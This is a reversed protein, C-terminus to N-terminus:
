MLLIVPKMFVDALNDNSPVYVVNLLQKEIESRVFHYRVDIHKSRQHQVPNKALAIDGQNDCYLSISKFVNRSIDIFSELLQFLFQAEQVAAALSMYEAECTSLAVTAKKRSKWSVLPGNVSLQFGYGTISRRDVSSGWDADCYGVLAMPRDVKRFVIGKESTGKLYRLVHKATNLHDVTPASLYRSLKTVSYCLDPRTSTMVYM